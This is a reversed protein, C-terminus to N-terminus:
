SDCLSAEVIECIIHGILIHCEQIRETKNAPAVICRCEHVLMGGDGGTLGITNIQKQNATRVAQIINSSQGSTSIAVLTDGANGLAEIERSFIEKFEYDNGVATVASSNTGLAIAPLAPRELKFRSIFEAALHQADAFSGGNGAFFVKQGNEVSSQIVSAAYAIDKIVSTEKLRAKTDIAESILATIRQHNSM